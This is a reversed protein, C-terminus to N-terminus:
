TSANKQAELKKADELTFRKGSRALLRAPMVYAWDCANCCRQSEDTTLPYPNNGYLDYPQGCICCKGTKKM